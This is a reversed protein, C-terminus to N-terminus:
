TKKKKKKGMMAKKLGAMKADHRESARRGKVSKKKAAAKTARQEKARRAKHEAATLKKPM